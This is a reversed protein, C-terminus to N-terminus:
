TARRASAFWGITILFFLAAAMLVFQTSAPASSAAASVGGFDPEVAIPPLLHFPFELFCFLRKTRSLPIPFSRPDYLETDDDQSARCGKWSSSTSCPLPASAFEADSTM